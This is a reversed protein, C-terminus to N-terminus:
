AGVDSLTVPLEMKKAGRIVAMTVRRGQLQKLRDRLQVQDIVPQGDVKAIIDGPLLGGAAAPSGHVVVTLSVGNVTGVQQSEQSNLNRFQAGFAYKVRVFYIALCDYRDVSMPVYTTQTGYTTTIASGNITALGGPGFVTANGTTTSTQSTPLTLPVATQVTGAYKGYILIRDAGVQKGQKLAEGDSANPGNFSSSGIVVYGDSALALIDSKPDNGRYLEPSEPAPALRRQTLEQSGQVPKYFQNYPNGACSTLLLALGVFAVFEPLRM